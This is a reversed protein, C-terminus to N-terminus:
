RKQPPEPCAKCSGCGKDKDRYPGCEPHSKAFRRYGRDVFVALLLILFLAAIAALYSM